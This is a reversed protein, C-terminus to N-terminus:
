AALHMSFAISDCALKILLLAEKKGFFDGTPAKEVPKRAIKVKHATVIVITDSIRRQKRKVKM